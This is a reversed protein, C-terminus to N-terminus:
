TALTAPPRCLDLCSREPRSAATDASQVGAHRAPGDAGRPLGAASGGAEQGADAAGPRRVGRDRRPQPCAPFRPKETIHKNLLDQSSAGRFPPRGTVLEYATAGFSYIDARGDLAQGRIQEPSMYSRTGQAKGKRASCSRSCAPRSARRGPRLRDAAGRRRQQGPHQGAQRRSPGLGQREHVGPGHGGAQPHGPAKERIFDRRAQAHDRLKLSGAPFFEMVFYPIRRTTPRGQRHPHHQPPGAGPRRRGRPAPLPPVRGADAKEPLLLKMAFHRGSTTEVVEWVQSTQGTVM